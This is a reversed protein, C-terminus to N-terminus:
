PWFKYAVKTIRISKNIHDRNLFSKIRRDTEDYIYSLENLLIDNKFQKFISESLCAPIEPQVPQVPQSTPSTTLSQLNATAISQNTSTPPASADQSYSYPLLLFNFLYDLFQKRLKPSNLLGYKEINSNDNQKLDLYKLGDVILSLM